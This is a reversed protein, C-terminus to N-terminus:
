KTAFHTMERFVSPLGYLWWGGGRGLYLTSLAGGKETVPTSKVPAKYTFSLVPLSVFAYMQRNMHADVLAM